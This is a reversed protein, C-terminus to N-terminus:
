KSRKMRSEAARRVMGEEAHPDCDFEGVAWELAAAGYLNGMCDVCVCNPTVADKLDRVRRKIEAETRM